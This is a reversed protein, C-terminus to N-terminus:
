EDEKEDPVINEASILSEFGSGDCINNLMCKNCVEHECKRVLEGFEQVTCIIKM